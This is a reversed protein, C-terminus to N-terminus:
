PKQLYLFFETNGKKKGKLPSKCLNLFKLGEKRAHEEISKLVEQHVLESKILGGKQVQNKGAEFQPKILALVSGNKILFLKINVILLKISIFSADVVILDVFTGITKFRISRFNTREINKIKGDQVLKWALQGYGVDVSFVFAAENQILCDTFGGTSAGIDLCIKNKIELGFEKIAHLLKVGGRSVFPHDEFLVQIESNIDVITGPKVIRRKNVLVKGSMLYAQARERSPTLNKELMLKDIRLRAVM